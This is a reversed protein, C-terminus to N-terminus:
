EFSYRHLTRELRRALGAEDPLSLREEHQERAAAVRDGQEVDGEPEAGLDRRQVDVVPQAVPRVLVLGEAAGQALPEPDPQGGFPDRQGLAAVELVAGPLRAVRKGLPHRGAVVRGGM